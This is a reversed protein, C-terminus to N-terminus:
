SKDAKFIRYNGDDFVKMFYSYKDKMESFLHDNKALLVYDVKYHTLLDVPNKNNLESYRKELKQIYEDVNKAVGYRASLGFLILGDGYNFISKVEKSSYEFFRMASLIRHEKEERSILSTSELNLYYYNKTYVLLTRCFRASAYDLSDTLVVDEKETHNNLWDIAGRVSQMDTYM